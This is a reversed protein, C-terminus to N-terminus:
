GNVPWRIAPEAACLPAITASIRPTRVHPVARCAKVLCASSLPLSIPPRSRHTHTPLHQLGGPTPRPTPPRSDACMGPQLGAVSSSPRIGHSVEVSRCLLSAVAIATSVRIAVLGDLMVADVMDRVRRRCRSRRCRCTATHNGRPATPDGLMRCGRQPTEIHKDLMHKPSKQGM